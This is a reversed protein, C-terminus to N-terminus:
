MTPLCVYQRNNSKETLRRCRKTGRQGHADTSCILLITLIWFITLSVSRAFAGSLTSYVCITHCQKEFVSCEGYM